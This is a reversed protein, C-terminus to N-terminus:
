CDEQICLDMLIIVVGDDCRPCGAADVAQIFCWDYCDLTYANTKPTINGLSSAIFSGVVISLVIIFSLFIFSLKKKM